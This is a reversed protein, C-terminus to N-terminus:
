MLKGTITELYVKQSYNSDFIEFAGEDMLRRINSRYEQNHVLLERIGSAISHVSRANVVVGVNEFVGDFGTSTSYLLPTGHLLAEAYVLGFTESISPLLFAQATAYHIGLADNAIYGLFSVRHEVGYKRAWGELVPRCPGDGIIDLHVGSEKLEALAKLLRKINKNKVDRLSNMRLITLMSGIRNKVAKHRATQRTVCNPLYMMKGAVHVDYFRSGLYGRIENKIYPAVYFVAECQRLISRVLPRLDWRYRLVVLDTARMSVVLPRGLERAIASGVIGEFTIKHAHIIDISSLDLLGRAAAAFVMRSVHRLNWRMMIGLPLGFHDIELERESVAEVRNRFLAAVRCLSVMIADFKKGAGSILNRVALPSRNADSRLDYSVHLITKKRM